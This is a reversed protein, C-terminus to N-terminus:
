TKPELRGLRSELRDVRERLADVGDLFDEVDARAPTLRAEDRAWDAADEAFARGRRRLTSLAGTLGRALPVGAVEGFREAFAAELDPAYGRLLKEVQRALAADGAIEVSGPAVQADGDLALALLSGPTAEIRL